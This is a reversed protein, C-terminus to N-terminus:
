NQPVRGQPATKNRGCGFRLFAFCFTFQTQKKKLSLTLRLFITANDGNELSSIDHELQFPFSEHRRQKGYQNCNDYTCERIM